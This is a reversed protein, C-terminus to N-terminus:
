KGCRRDISNGVLLSCLWVVWLLIWWPHINAYAWFEYSLSHWAPYSEM